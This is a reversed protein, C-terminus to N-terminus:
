YITATEAKTKQIEQTNGRIGNEKPLTQTCMEKQRADEGKGTYKEVRTQTSDDGM